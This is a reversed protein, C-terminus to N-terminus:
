KSKNSQKSKWIFIGTGVGAGILTGVPILIINWETKYLAAVAYFSIGFGIVGGLFGFLLLNFLNVIKDASKNGM